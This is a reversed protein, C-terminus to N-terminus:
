REKQWIKFLAESDVLSNGARAIGSLGQQIKCIDEVSLGYEKPHTAIGLEALLQKLKQSANEKFITTMAQRLEEDDPLCAAIDALSFSCAIGHSIGYHSTLYYSVAHAIATKTNSFALGAKLSALLMRERLKLDKLNRNLEPLITLIEKAASVAFLTSVPNRNKNWLAELAHSLADLGTSVTIERPLSLTLEPDLVASEPWLDPLHLSFKQKTLNDWVTAWPTVESGTGATTPVAIVPILAYNKKATKERILDEVFQFHHNDQYVSLVKASDLVSGGGLAIIVENKEGSGHAQEYLKKLDAFVPNPNVTDIIQVRNNFQAALEAAVGNKIFTPSTLLLAKRRGALEPIKKVSGRGFVVKVPNFYSFSM